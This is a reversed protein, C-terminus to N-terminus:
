KWNPLRGPTLPAGMDGLKKDMAEFEKLLAKTKTYVPTFLKSAIEYQQKASGPIDSFNGYLGFLATGARQQLAIDADMDLRGKDPDGDLMIGIEKLKAELARVESLLDAAQQGRFAKTAAKWAPIKAKMEGLKSSVADIVGNLEQAKKKFVILEKRDQAPLSQNNLAVIEFSVPGALESVVGKVNKAMSVKYTGPVVEIGSSPLGKTESAGSASVSFSAPYQMDWVIENLGKNLSTRLERIFEGNEDTITFLFGKGGLTQVIKLAGKASLTKGRGTAEAERGEHQSMRPRTKLIFVRSTEEQRDGVLCSGVSLTKIFNSAKYKAPIVAPTRKFVAKIDDSFVLKFAMIVDLQSLIKSDIASPQQTAFVLSCGPRRGQKVYEVLADTAPTKINGSPILTHAEDIFLWTPPIGLELLEEPKELELRQAAERRTSIKRAALIRRALIGIILATVNDDLFSTDIVTLQEERSLEALPTGEKDFVGWSKAAEFRSM